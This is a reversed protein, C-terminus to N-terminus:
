ICFAQWLPLAEIWLAALFCQTISLVLFVSVKLQFSLFVVTLFFKQYSKSSQSGTMTSTPLGEQKYNSAGPGPFILSTIEISSLLSLPVFISISILCLYPYIFLYIQGCISSPHISLYILSLCVFSLLIFLHISTCISPHISLYMSILLHISSLCILSLYYISVYMSIYLHIFLYSSLNISLYIFSRISLYVSCALVGTHTPTHAHICPPPLQLLDGVISQHKIYM